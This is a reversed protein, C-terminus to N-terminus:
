RNHGGTVVCKESSLVESETMALNTMGEVGETTKWTRTSNEQTYTKRTRESTGENFVNLM